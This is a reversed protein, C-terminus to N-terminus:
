RGSECMFRQVAAMDDSFKLKSSSVLVGCRQADQDLEDILLRLHTLGKLEEGQQAVASGVVSLLLAITLFFRFM